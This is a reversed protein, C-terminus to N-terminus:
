QQESSEDDSQEERKVSVAVIAAAMLKAVEQAVRPDLGVPSAYGERAFDFTQQQM